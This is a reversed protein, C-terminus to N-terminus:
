VRRNWVEMAKEHWKMTPEHKLMNDWYKKTEMDCNVCAITGSCTSSASFVAKGGCFPCPKLLEHNM